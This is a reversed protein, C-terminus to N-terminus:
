PPVLDRGWGLTLIGAHFTRCVPLACQETIRARTEAWCCGGGLLEGKRYSPRKGSAACLRPSSTSAQEYISPASALRIKLSRLQPSGFTLPRPTTSRSPNQLSPLRPLPELRIIIDPDDIARQIEVNALIM